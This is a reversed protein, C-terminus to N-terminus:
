SIKNHKKFNAYASLPVDYLLQIILEAAFLKIAVPIFNSGRM